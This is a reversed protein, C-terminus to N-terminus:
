SLLEKRIIFKLDKNEDCDPCLELKWNGSSGGDM